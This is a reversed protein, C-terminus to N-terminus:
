GNFFTFSTRLGCQVNISFPIVFITYDYTIVTNSKLIIMPSSVRKPDCIGSLM